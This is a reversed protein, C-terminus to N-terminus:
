DAGRVKGAPRMWPPSAPEAKEIRERLIAFYRVRQDATFIASEEILHGIVAEQMRRQLDRIKEQTARVSNRDPEPQALLDVLRLQERKIEGGVEGVRAHFTRRIPDFKKEQEQTLHLAQYPLIEGQRQDGGVWRPASKYLYTGLFAVNLVISFLIALRRLNEKM